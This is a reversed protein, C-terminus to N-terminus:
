IPVGGVCLARSGSIVGPQLQRKTHRRPNPGPLAGMRPSSGVVQWGAIWSKRVMNFM